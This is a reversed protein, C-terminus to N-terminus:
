KRAAKREFVRPESLVLQQQVNAQAQLVETKANTEARILREKAVTDADILREKASTEAQIVREKADAEARLIDAKTPETAAGPAKDSSSVLSVAVLLSALLICFLGPSSTKVLLSGFDRAEGRLGIAGEIGMVFLSFGISILAFCFGLILTTRREESASLIQLAQVLKDMMGGLEADKVNSPVSTDSQPTNTTRSDSAPGHFASKFAEHSSAVDAAPRDAGSFMMTWALAMNLIAIVIGAVTLGRSWRTNQQKVVDDIM